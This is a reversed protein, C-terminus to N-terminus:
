RIMVGKLEILPIVTFNDEHISGRVFVYKKDYMYDEFVFSIWYENTFDFLSTQIPEVKVFAQPAITEYFHRLVSTSRREGGIKGYGRSNILVNQIPHQKLNVVFVDWLEDSHPDEYKRPVVAVILDEVKYSPIDKKM